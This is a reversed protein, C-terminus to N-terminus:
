LKSGIITKRTTIILVLIMTSLLTIMGAPMLKGTAWTRYLFFVFLLTSILLATYFAFPSARNIGLGAAVLFAGMLTGAILSPISGAFLYGILGGFIILMGYAAVCNGTWKM